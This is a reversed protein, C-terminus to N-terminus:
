IRNCNRFLNLSVGIKPNEGEEPAFRYVKLAKETAEVKKATM